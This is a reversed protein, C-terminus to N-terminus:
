YVLIKSFDFKIKLPSLHKNLINLKKKKKLLPPCIKKRPHDVVWILKSNMKKLYLFFNFFLFLFKGLEGQVM